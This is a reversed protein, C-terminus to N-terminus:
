SQAGQAVGEPHRVAGQAPMEVGNVVFPEHIHFLIGM